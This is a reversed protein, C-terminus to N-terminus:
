PREAQDLPASSDPPDADKPQDTQDPQDRHRRVLEDVNRRINRRLQKTKEDEIVPLVLRNYDLGVQRYNADEPFGIDMTSRGLLGAVTAMAVDSVRVDLLSGDRIQNLGLMRHDDLFETVKLVQDARDFRVLTAMAQVLSQPQDTEDLTRVALDGAAPVNRDSAHFLWEPRDSDSTKLLFAGFLNTGYSRSANGNLLLGGQSRRLQNLMARETALEPAFNPDAAAMLLATLAPRTDPGMVSRFNANPTNLAKQIARRRNDTTGELSQLLDPVERYMMVVESRVWGSDGMLKKAVSWGPMDNGTGALFASEISRQYQDELRALLRGLRLRVEPDGSLAEGRQLIPVIPYGSELLSASARERVAFDSSGLQDVLTEITELTPGFQEALEQRSKLRPSTADSSERGTAEPAVDQTETSADEGATQAGETDADDGASQSRLPETVSRWQREPDAEAFVQEYRDPSLPAIHAIPKQPSAEAETQGSSEAPNSSAPPPTPPQQAVVSSGPIGAMTLAALAFATMIPSTATRRPHMERKTM